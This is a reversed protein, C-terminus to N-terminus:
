KQSKTGFIKKKYFSPNECSIFTFARNQWIYTIKTQIKIIWFCFKAGFLNRLLFEVLLLKFFIKCFFFTGKFYM